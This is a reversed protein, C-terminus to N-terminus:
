DLLWNDGLIRKLDAQTPKNREWEEHERERRQRDEERIEEEIRRAEARREAERAKYREAEIQRQEEPTLEVDPKRDYDGNAMNTLIEESSTLWAFSGKLGEPYRKTRIRGNCIDSRAMNVVADVLIQKTKFENVLRQVQAKKGRSVYKLPPIISNHLRLTANFFHVFADWDINLEKMMVM